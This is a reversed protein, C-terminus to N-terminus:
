TRALSFLGARADPTKATCARKVDLPDTRALRPGSLRPTRAPYVVPLKAQCSGCTRKRRRTETGRSTRFASRTGRHQHVFNRAPQGLAGAQWHHRCRPNGARASRETAFPAVATREAENTRTT